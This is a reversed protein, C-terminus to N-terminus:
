KENGEHFFQIELDEDGAHHVTVKMGKRRAWDYVAQRMSERGVKFDTGRSLRWIQGDTWSQWPYKPRGTPTFETVTQAM